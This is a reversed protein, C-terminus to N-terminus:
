EAEQETKVKLELKYIVPTDKNTDGVNMEVKLFFGQSGAQESLYLYDSVLNDDNLVIRTPYNANFQDTSGTANRLDYFKEGDFSISFKLTEQDAEPVLVDANIEISIIPFETSIRGSKWIGSTGYTVEHATINDVVTEIVPIENKTIVKTDSNGVNITIQDPGFISEALNRVELSEAFNLVRITEKSGPEKLEIVSYAPYTINENMIRFTLANTRRNSILLGERPTASVIEGEEHFDVRVKSNSDITIMNANALNTLQMDIDIRAPVAWGITQVVFDTNASDDFANGLGYAGGWRIDDFPAILRGIFSGRFLDSDKVSELGNLSTIMKGSPDIVRMSRIGTLKKMSLAPLTMITDNIINASREVFNFNFNVVKVEHTHISTNAVREIVQNQVNDISATAVEMIESAKNVAETFKDLMKNFNDVHETIAENAVNIVEIIQEQIKNLHASTTRDTFKVDSVDFEPFGGTTTLKNLRQLIKMAMRIDLMPGTQELVAQLDDRIGEIQHKTLTTKM